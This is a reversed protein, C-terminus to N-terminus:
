EKMRGVFSETLSRIEAYVELQSRQWDKLDGYKVQKSLFRTSLAGSAM